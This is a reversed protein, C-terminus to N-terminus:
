EKDLKERAEQVWRQHPDNPDYSAKSLIRITTEADGLMMAYWAEGYSGPKRASRAAQLKEIEKDRLLSLERLRERLPAPEKLAVAKGELRAIAAASKGPVDFGRAYGSVFLAELARPAM